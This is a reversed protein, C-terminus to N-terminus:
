SAFKAFRINNEKFYKKLLAYFRDSAQSKETRANSIRAPPTSFCRKANNFKLGKINVIKGAKCVVDKSTVSKFQFGLQITSILDAFEPITLKYRDKLQLTYNIILMDKAQKPRVNKFEVQKAPAVKDIGAEFGFKTKLIEVITQFSEPIGDPLKIIEKKKSLAVIFRRNEADYELGKPFKDNALDSFKEKWFPDLTYMGCEIFFNVM